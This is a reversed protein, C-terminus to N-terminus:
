LTFDVTLTQGQQFRSGRRRGPLGDQATHV